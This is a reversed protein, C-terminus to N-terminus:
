RGYHEVMSECEKERLKHCVEGLLAVQEPTITGNELRPMLLNRLDEPSKKALKHLEDLSAGGAGKLGSKRAKVTAVCESDERKKCLEALLDLEDVTGTDALAKPMIVFSAAMLQGRNMLRKAEAYEYSAEGGNPLKIALRPDPEGPSTNTESAAAAPAAVAIPKDEIPKTGLFLDKVDDCSSFPGVSALAVLSCSALTRNM